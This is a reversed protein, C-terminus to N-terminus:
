IGAILFYLGLFKTQITPSSYPQPNIGGSPLSGSSVTELMGVAVAKLLWWPPAPGHWLCWKSSFPASAWGPAALGGHVPLCGGPWGCFGWSVATHPEGFGLCASTPKQRMYHSGSGVKDLILFLCLCLRLSGLQSWAQFSSSAQWSGLLDQAGLVDVMSGLRLNGYLSYIHCHMNLCGASLIM